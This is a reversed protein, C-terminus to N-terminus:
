TIGSTTITISSSLNFDPIEYEISVSVIHRDVLESPNPNDHDFIINNVTIYPMYTEVQEEIRSHLSPLIEDRQEFLFRRVGVGFSPNMIREGPSTLLLNKFNQRVEEHYSTVLDYVGYETSRTLPLRAGIGEM